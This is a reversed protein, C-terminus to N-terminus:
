DNQISVYCEAKGDAGVTKRDREEGDAVIRCTTGPNAVFTSIAVSSAMVMPVTLDCRICM